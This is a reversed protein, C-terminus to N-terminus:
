PTDRAELQQRLTALDGRQDPGHPHHARLADWAAWTDRGKAAELRLAHGIQAAYAPAGAHRDADEPWYGIVQAGVYLVGAAIGPPNELECWVGPGEMPYAPFAPGSDPRLIGGLDDAKADSIRGPIEPV